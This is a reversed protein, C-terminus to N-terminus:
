LGFQQLRSYAARVFAPATTASGADLGFAAALTDSMAPAPSSAFDAGNAGGASAKAAAFEQAIPGGAPALAATAGFPAGDALALDAGDGVPDSGATAMMASDMKAKVLGMVAGLSRPNGSADYFIARNSAAANPLLAAASQTPDAGLASLFKIAGDPGLFHALYLESADPPRQLANTLAVQNDGALAAAMMAAADPNQRLAMLGARAAPNALAGPALGLADAHKGLTQAWTGKTFQYLGSASSTAAHAAPDLHSEIQAQALLYSFDVGTANAARAIAARVAPAGAPASAPGTANAAISPDPSSM